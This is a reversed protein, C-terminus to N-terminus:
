SVGRRMVITLLVPAGFFATVIGVELESPRAVIRGIIDCLLLFSPGVLISAALVARQDVGVVIRLLHPIALGVFGIPGAAATAAGCLLTIAALALGRILGLRAGLAVAQEDGLALANLSPGCLLALTLGIGLFPLVPLLVDYGRDAASGIVWFRYSSFVKTNFMTIVGTAASLTAGLAAGALVLRAHDSAHTRRLSNLYVFGSAAASGLFAFWLYQSTESVGLVSIALVVALAAGANVGLLGPEALPNRTLAQIVVGSVALAVGICAALLTRPLRLQWVIISARTEEQTFLGHWVQSLTLPQSGLALSVLVLPGLLCVGALVGAGWANRRLSHTLAVRGNARAGLALLKNLLSITNYIWAVSEHSQNM